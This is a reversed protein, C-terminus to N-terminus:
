LHRYIDIYIYIYTYTYIYIHIYTYIYIHICTNIYVHIYTYIYIHIYTYIYIHIYTYIYIHMYTYIYITYNYLVYTYVSLVYMHGCGWKHCVQALDSAIFATWPASRLSRSNWWSKGMLHSLRMWVASQINGEPGGLQIHTHTKVM